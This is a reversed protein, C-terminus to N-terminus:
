GRSQARAGARHRAGSRGHWATSRGTPADAGCRRVLISQMALLHRAAGRAKNRLIFDLYRGALLLFSLMVAADFYVQRGAQMTQWVSLGLSLLLALSVIQLPWWSLPAFSLVAFAGALLAALAAWRSLAPSLSDSPM